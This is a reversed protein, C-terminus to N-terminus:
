PNILREAVFSIKQFLEKKESLNYQVDRMKVIESM